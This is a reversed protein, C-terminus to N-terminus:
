RATRRGRTALDLRCGPLGCELTLLERVLGRVRHGGLEAVLEVLRADHAEAM